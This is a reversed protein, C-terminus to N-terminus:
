RPSRFCNSAVGVHGSKNANGSSVHAKHGSVFLHVVRGHIKLWGFSWYFEDKNSVIHSPRSIEVIIPDLRDKGWGDMGGAAEFGLFGDQEWRREVRSM